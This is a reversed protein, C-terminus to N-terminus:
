REMDFEITLGKETPVVRTLDTREGEENVMIATWKGEKKSVTLRADRSDFEDITATTTWVGSFDAVKPSDAAKMWPTAICLGLALTLVSHKM